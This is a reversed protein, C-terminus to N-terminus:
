IGLHKSMCGTWLFGCVPVKRCPQGGGPKGPFTSVLPPDGPPLWGLGPPPPLCGGGVCQEWPEPLGLFLLVQVKLVLGAPTRGGPSVWGWEAAWRGSGGPWLLLGLCPGPKASGLAPM